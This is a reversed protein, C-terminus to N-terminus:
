APAKRSKSPLAQDRSEAVPVVRLAVNQDNSKDRKETEEPPPKEPHRKVPCALRNTTRRRTTASAPDHGTARHHGSTRRPSEPGSGPGGGPRFITRGPPGTKVVNGEHGKRAKSSVDGTERAQGRQGQHDRGHRTTAKSESIKQQVDHDGQ